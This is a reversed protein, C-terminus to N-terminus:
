IQVEQEEKRGDGGCGGCSRVFPETDGSGLFIHQLGCRLQM